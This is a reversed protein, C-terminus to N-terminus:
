PWHGMTEVQILNLILYNLSLAVGGVTQVQTIQLQEQDRRCQSESQAVHRDEMGEMKM